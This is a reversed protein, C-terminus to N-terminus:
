EEADIKESSIYDRHFWLLPSADRASGYGAAEVMGVFITHTGAEHAAIVRCDLFAVSDDFIPAGTTERHHAIDAFPESPMPTQKAFRQALARQAVSLINVAFNGARTVLQHTRSGRLICVLALPPTLSVSAFSNATMGHIAADDRVTIVTVGTPYQRMVQRFHEPAIPM